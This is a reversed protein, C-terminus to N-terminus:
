GVALAPWLGDAGDAHVVQCLYRAWYEDNGYEDRWSWLRTTYRHLPHEMTFGIAGHVQHAIRAVTTAAIGAQVKGAAIALAAVAAPRAASSLAAVAAEASASTAAVEGALLSVQQRIADMRALSRGFQHREATYRLTLALVRRLAGAIQVTRALAARLELEALLSSPMAVASEARAGALRVEDRPEGALNMGPRTIVATSPLIAVMVEDGIPAVAVLHDAQRGWPIYALRGEFRWGLGDRVVRLADPRRHEWGVAARGAPLHLGTHEVLWGALFTQEAVPVPAANAALAAVVASGDRLDGGAGGASEAFGVRDLGTEVLAQWPDGPHDAAIRDVLTTLEDM